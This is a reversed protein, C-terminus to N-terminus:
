RDSTTNDHLEIVYALPSTKKLEGVAHRRKAIKMAVQTGLVATGTALATGVGGSLGGAVAAVLGSIWGEEAFTSLVGSKLDFSWLRATDEYASIRAMLDDRVYAPDKEPYTDYVFRRLARLKARSTEDRRFEHIESWSLNSTDVLRLNSLAVCLREASTEDPTARESGYLLALKGDGAMEQLVPVANAADEFLMKTTPDAHALLSRTLTPDLLATAWGKDTLGRQSGAHAFGHLGQVLGYPHPIDRLAPPLLERLAGDHPMDDFSVSTSVRTGQVVPNGFAGHSAPVVYDFYLAADKAGFLTLATTDNFYRMKKSCNRVVQLVHADGVSHLRSRLSYGVVAAGRM